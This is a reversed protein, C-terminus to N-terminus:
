EVWSGNVSQWLTLMSIAATEARLTLPGLYMPTCAPHSKLLALDSDSFGGEPGILLAEANGLRKKELSTPNPDGWIISRDKPWDKLIGSLSVVQKIIPITLRGSQESAEIAILRARNLNIKKVVTHATILPQFHSVGLETAKEIILEVRNKKILSFLLCVKKAAVDPQPRVQVKSIITGQNGHFSDILGIWEGCFGNFILIKNGPKRHMVTRLYHVQRQDLNIKTEVGINKEVFLRILKSNTMNPLLM